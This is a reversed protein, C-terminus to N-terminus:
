SPHALPLAVSSYPMWQGNQYIELPQYQTKYCMKKCAKIWYGLYLWPFNLHKAYDLQWLVAYVGPSQHAFEPDFFTYVASLADELYDIVAVAILQNENSFEVFLTDCWRSGLFRLYEEPSTNQMSSDPHKTKQYRLYLDYHRQDYIAPKISAVTNHNKALCRKQNRTPQFSPVSIRAAICASCHTCTPKYVDDGSRRYGKAILQSYAFTNMEFAPHVFTTQADRDSFYSCSHSQSSLLPISIM